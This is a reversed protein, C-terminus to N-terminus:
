TCNADGSASLMVPEPIERDSRSPRQTSNGRASSNCQFADQAVAIVFWRGDIRVM